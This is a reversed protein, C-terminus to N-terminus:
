FNSFIFINVYSSIIYACVCIYTYTYISLLMYLVNNYTQIHTYSNIISTALMYLFLSSVQCGMQSLLPWWLPFNSSIYPNSRSSSPRWGRINCLVGGGYKYRYRIKYRYRDRYIYLSLSTHFNRNSTYRKKKKKIRLYKCPCKTMYKQLHPWFLVHCHLQYGWRIWM